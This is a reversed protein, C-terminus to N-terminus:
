RSHFSDCFNVIQKLGGVGWGRGGVGMGGAGM